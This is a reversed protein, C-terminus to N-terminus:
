CFGLLEWAAIVKEAKRDGRHTAIALKHAPSKKSIQRFTIADTQFDPRMELIHRLLLGKIEGERGEYEVDIVINELGELYSELLLFVGAAFMRIHIMEPHVGRVRLEHLVERKVTAPILIASQIGNSFALATDYSTQEIKGSQNVEIYHM